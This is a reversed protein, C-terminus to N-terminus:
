KYFVGNGPTSRENCMIIYGISDVDNANGMGVIEYVKMMNKPMRKDAFIFCNPTKLGAAFATVYHKISFSLDNENKNDPDVEAKINGSKYFNNPLAYVVIEDKKGSCEYTTADSNAVQNRHKLLPVIANCAAAYNLATLHSACKKERAITGVDAVKKNIIFNESLGKNLADTVTRSLHDLPQRNQLLLEANVAELMFRKAKHERVAYSRHKLLESAVSNLVSATAIRPRGVGGQMPLSEVVHKKMSACYYKSLKYWQHMQSATVEEKHLAMGIERRFKLPLQVKGNKDRFDDAYPGRAHDKFRLAFERRKMERLQLSLM